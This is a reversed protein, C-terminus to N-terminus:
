QELQGWLCDKWNKDDRWGLMKGHRLAHSEPDIDMAGVEIVRFKYQEPASKIEETLGSLYGVVVVKDDRVLGIELSGALGLYYSKTVPEIMEGRQYDFYHEGKELLEGIRCDAWYQWTEIEKGTYEKKPPTARGTFFVDITEKIEKKVKISVRAPTRKNYVIADKRMIVVGERGSALYDQLKDWLEKGEFYEAYEVYPSPLAAAISRVHQARDVYKMKDFNIGSWAMIDFVYLHLPSDKQRQIAKDKLCGLISTINKSGENGPWYCECLLCTGNPLSDLWPKIQPLWEIKNVVEGRVNRSRAIMACNGEDDKVIRQYYGDVKLAGIYEGSFIANRITEKKVSDATSAPFSWYKMPEAEVWNIGSIEGFM